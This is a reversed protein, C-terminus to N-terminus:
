NDNHFDEIEKRDKADDYGIMGLAMDVADLLTGTCLGGDISDGQEGNQIDAPTVEGKYIDFNYGGNAESWDVTITYREGDAYTTITLDM